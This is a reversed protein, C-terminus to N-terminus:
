SAKAFEEAITYRTLCSSRTASALKKWEDMAMDRCQFPGVLQQTGDVIRDFETDLYEGGVVWYKCRM